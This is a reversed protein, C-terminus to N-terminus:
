LASVRAFHCAAYHDTGVPDLNPEQTRCIEPEGLSRYLPCRPHFPCGSPLSFASPPEGEITPLRKNGMHIDPVSQLLALTYPHAADDLAEAIPVTEVIRGAYMVAVRDCMRAVVGFDHTIFLIAQHTERQLQKLLDLYAAQVTVDLSTTPEDAILLAPNASIAIAGVARQRMGGSLQHPYDGLRTEAAPIRLRQLLDIVRNRLAQGRVHDHLRVSEGVQSGLTFVPNLATMPDQLVLAIQKGRYQRLDRPSKKVLDDGKFLVQGAVIRAAKPQLGVIALATVSKGCGSEGILGLTEGRRLDFQVGDVAKGVGRRAFFWVRLDRVSLIPEERLRVRSSMDKGKVTTM